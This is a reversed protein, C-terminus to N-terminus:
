TNLKYTIPIVIKVEVPPPPFPSAKRIAKEANDDLTSFGSSKNIKIGKVSGDLCVLFSIIVDGEMSMKRAKYPYSINIRIIKNIYDFHEKIYRNEASQELEHPMRDSQPVGGSWGGKDSNVTGKSERKTDAVTQKVKKTVAVAKALVKKKTKVVTEQKVRDPPTEEKIKGAVKEIVKGNMVIKTERKVKEPVSMEEKTVEVLEEVTEDEVTNKTEQKVMAPISVEKKINEATKMTNTDIESEGTKITNTVIFEIVVEMDERTAPKKIYPALTLLLLHIIFSAAVFRLTHYNM